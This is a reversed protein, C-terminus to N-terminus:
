QKGYRTFLINALAMRSQGQAQRSRGYAVVHGLQEQFLILGELSRLSEAIVNVYTLTFARDEM